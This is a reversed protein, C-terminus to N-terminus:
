MWRQAWQSLVYVLWLRNKGWDSGSLALQQGELWRSNLFPMKDRLTDISDRVAGTSIWQEMWKSIPVAFGQKPRDVLERPVHRYLISRLIHKNGLSGYRLHLPLRYAFEVIRHDLLPERGELGVAMTARDVKTLVDDPLYEHLDMATLQEMPQGPWAATAGRPDRYPEGLLRAVEQSQWFTRFPRIADLGPAARLFGRMKHLRDFLLGHGFARHLRPALGGALNM